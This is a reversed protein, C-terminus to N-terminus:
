RFLLDGCRSNALGAALDLLDAVGEDLHIKDLVDALPFPLDCVNFDPMRLEILHDFLRVASHSDLERQESFLSPCEM